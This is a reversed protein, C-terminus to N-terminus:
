DFQNYSSSSDGVKMKYVALLTEVSWLTVVGDGTAALVSTEDEDAALHHITIHSSGLEKYRHPKGGAIRWVTGGSDVSSTILIEHTPLYAMTTIPSVHLNQFSLVISGKDVDYGYISGEYIAFVVQTKEHLYVKDCWVSEKPAGAMQATASPSSSGPISLNLRNRAHQYLGFCWPLVQGDRTRPIDFPNLDKANKYAEHDLDCDWIRIGCSGATIVEKRARNYIVERVTGNAWPMASKLTLRENYIRLNGDLCAAFLLNTDAAVCMATIFTSQYGLSSSNLDVHNTLRASM